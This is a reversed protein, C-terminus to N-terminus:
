LNKKEMKRLLLLGSRPGITEVNVIEKLPGARHIINVSISLRKGEGTCVRWREAGLRRSWIHRIASHLIPQRDCKLSKRFNMLRVVCRGAGTRVVYVHSHTELLSAHVRHTPCPAHECVRARAGYDAHLYRPFHCKMGSDAVLPATIAIFDPRYHFRRCAAWASPKATVAAGSTRTNMWEHAGARQPCM